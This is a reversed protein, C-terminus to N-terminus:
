LESGATSRSRLNLKNILDAAQTENVSRTNKLLTEAISKYAPPINQLIDKKHLKIKKSGGEPLFLYYGTDTLYKDSFDGVFNSGASSKDGKRLSIARVKVLKLGKQLTDTSILEAFVINKDVRFKYFLHTTGEKILFFSKVSSNDVIIATDKWKVYIDQTIFDFNFRYNKSITVNNNNIIGGTEWNDSFFHEKGGLPEFTVLDKVNLNSGAQVMFNRYDEGISTTNSIQASVSVGVLMNLLLTFLNAKM